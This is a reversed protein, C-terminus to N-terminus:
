KLQPSRSHPHRNSYTLTSANNRHLNNWRHDFDEIEDDDINSKDFMDKVHGNRGIERKRAVAQDGIMRMEAMETKGTTSDYTKKKAHRVGNPGTYTSMSSSYFFTDHPQNYRSHTHRNSRDYNPQSYNHTDDDSDPEEIIPTNSHPQYRTEDQEEMVRGSRNRNPYGHGHIQQHYPQDFGLSGYPSSFFPHNFMSNMMQHM